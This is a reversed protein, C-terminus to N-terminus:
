EDYLFGEEELYHKLKKRIRYVRVRINGPSEGVMEAIRSFSYDLFYRMIILNREEDSLKQLVRLVYEQNELRIFYEEMSLVSAETFTFSVEDDLPIESQDKRETHKTHNIACNRVTSMLYALMQRDTLKNFRTINEMVKIIAIDFVEETLQVDGTIKHATSFLISRYQQFLEFVRQYQDPSATMRAM